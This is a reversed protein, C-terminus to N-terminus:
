KESLQFITHVRTKETLIEYFAPETSAEMLINRTPWSLTCMHRLYAWFTYRCYPQNPSPLVNITLLHVQERIFIAYAESVELGYNSGRYIGHKTTTEYRSTTPFSYGLRPATYYEYKTFQEDHKLSPFLLGKLLTSRPYSVEMHTIRIASRLTRFVNSHM